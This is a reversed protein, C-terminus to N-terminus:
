DNRTRLPILIGVLSSRSVRVWASPAQDGHSSRLRENTYPGRCGSLVVLIEVFAERSPMKLTGRFCGEADTEGNLYPELLRADAPPQPPAFTVRVGRAPNGDLTVSVSVQQEEPFRPVLPAMVASDAPLRWGPVAMVMLAAALLALALTELGKM